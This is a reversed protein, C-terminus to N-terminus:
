ETKLGELARHAQAKLDNLVDRTVSQEKFRTGFATLDSATVTDLRASYAQVAARAEACRL